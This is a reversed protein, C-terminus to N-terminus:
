NNLVLETKLHKWTNTKTPNFIKIQMPLFNFSSCKDYKDYGENLPLKLITRHVGASDLDNM